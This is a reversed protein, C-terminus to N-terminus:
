NEIQEKESKDKESNDQELHKRILITRKKMNGKWFQQKNQTTEKESIDKSM